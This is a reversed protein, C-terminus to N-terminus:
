PTQRSEETLRQREQWLSIEYCGAIFEWAMSYKRSPESRSYEHTSLPGSHDRFCSLSIGLRKAIMAAAKARSPRAIGAAKVSSQNAPDATM